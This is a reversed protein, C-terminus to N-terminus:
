AAVEARCDEREHRWSARDDDDELDVVQSELSELKRGMDAAAYALRRIEASASM